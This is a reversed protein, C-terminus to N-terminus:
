KATFWFTFIKETDNVSTFYCSPRATGRSAPCKYLLSADLGRAVFHISVLRFSPFNDFLWTVLADSFPQYMDGCPIVPGESWLEHFKPFLNRGGLMTLNRQARACLTHAIRQPFINSGPFTPWLEGYTVLNTVLWCAMCSNRYVSQLLKPELSSQKRSIAPKTDCIRSKYM